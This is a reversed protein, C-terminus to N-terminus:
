EYIRYWACPFLAVCQAFLFSVLIIPKIWPQYRVSKNSYVVKLRHLEAPQFRADSATCLKMKYM